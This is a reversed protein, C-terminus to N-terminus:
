ANSVNLRTIVYIPSKRRWNQQFSDRTEAMKYQSVQPLVYLNLDATARRQLGETYGEGFKELYIVSVLTIPSEPHNYTKFPLQASDTATSSLKPAVDEPLTSIDRFDFCSCQVLTCWTVEDISPVIVIYGRVSM